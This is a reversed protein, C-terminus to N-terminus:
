AKEPRIRRAKILKRAEKLHFDEMETHLGSLRKYYPAIRPDPDSIKKGTVKDYVPESAIRAENSLRHHEKMQDRHFKLESSDVPTVRQKRTENIQQTLDTSRSENIAKQQKWSSM